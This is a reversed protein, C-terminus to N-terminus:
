PGTPTPHPQRRAPRPLARRQTPRVRWGACAGGLLGRIVQSRPGAADPDAAPRIAALQDATSYDDPFADIPALTPPTAAARRRRETEAKSWALTATKRSDTNETLLPTAPAATNEASQERSGGTTDDVTAPPHTALAERGRPHRLDTPPRKVTGAAMPDIM